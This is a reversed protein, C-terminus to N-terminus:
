PKGDVDLITGTISRGKAPQAYSSGSSLLILLMALLCMAPGLPHAFRRRLM